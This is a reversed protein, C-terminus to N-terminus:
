SVFLFLERLDLKIFEKLSSSEVFICQFSSVSEFQRTFCDDQHRMVRFHDLIETVAPTQEIL